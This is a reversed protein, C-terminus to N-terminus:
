NFETALQTKYWKIFEEEELTLYGWSDTVILSGPLCFKWRLRNQRYALVPMREAILAQRVAQEWWARVLLNEQRKVELAIGPLTLCDAGGGRSQELNRELDPLGPFHTKFWKLIEREGNAGKNRSMKSM